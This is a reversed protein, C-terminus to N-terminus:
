RVARAGGRRGGAPRVADAAAFAGARRCRHLHLLFAGNGGGIDLLCRHRGLDYADLVEAAILPQSAAMLASYGAVQEPRLAAPGSAGAYPWYRGLDTGPREGRLLAVPDQLDAYLLAHHEVMEAVGPQGVLGCGISGLAYRGGAVRRALRLAVAADLLRSAAEESLGLRPALAAVDQPGEFLMDLLRLRVCALLVQSYVFGAVLDFAARTRRRAIPRTLPFSAAWRQFRPSALVRERLGPRPARRPRDDEAPSM